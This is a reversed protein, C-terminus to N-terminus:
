IWSAIMLFREVDKELGKVRALRELGFGTDRTEPYWELLVGNDIALCEIEDCLDYELEGSDPRVVFWFDLDVVNSNM